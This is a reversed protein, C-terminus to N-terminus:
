EEALYHQQKVYAAVAATFREADGPVDLATGVDPEVTTGYDAEERLDFANHLMKGLDRSLVGTKTFHMNFLAIVGSHKAAGEDITALVAPTAYFMAYYARNIISRPSKGTRGLERAAELVEFAQNMRYRVLQERM